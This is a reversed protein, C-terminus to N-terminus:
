SIFYFKSMSSSRDLDTRDFKNAVYAPTASSTYNYSSYWAFSNPNINETNKNANEIHYASNEIIIIVSVVFLSGSLNSKKSKTLM